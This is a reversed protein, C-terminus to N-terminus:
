ILPVVVVAVPSDTVVAGVPTNVSLVGVATNVPTLESIVPPSSTISTM